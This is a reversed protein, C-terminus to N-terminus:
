REDINIDPEQTTFVTVTHNKAALRKGVEFFVQEVGGFHPFFYESVILINM